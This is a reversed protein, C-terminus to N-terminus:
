LLPPQEPFSLRFFCICAIGSRFPRHTYGKKPVTPTMVSRSDDVDDVHTFASASGSSPGVGLADFRAMLPSLPCRDFDGLLPRVVGRLSLSSGSGAGDSLGNARGYSVDLREAAGRETPGLPLSPSKSLQFALSWSLSGISRSGVPGPGLARGDLLMPPTTDPVSASSGIAPSPASISPLM